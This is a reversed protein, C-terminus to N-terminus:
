FFYEQAVPHECGGQQLVHETLGPQETEDEDDLIDAWEVREKNNDTQDGKGPKDYPKYPMKKPGGVLIKRRPVQLSSKQQLMMEEEGPNAQQVGQAGTGPQTMDPHEETLMVNGGDDAVILRAAADGMIMVSKETEMREQTPHDPQLGDGTGGLVSPSGDGVGVFTPVAAGVPSPVSGAGATALTAGGLPLSVSGTGAPVPLHGGVATTTPDKEVGTPVRALGGGSGVPAPPPGAGGVPASSSGGGSGAPASPPGVGGVMASSPRAVPSGKTPVLLAEVRGQRNPCQKDGTVHGFWRRNMLRPAVKNREPPYDKIVEGFEQIVAAKLFPMVLYPVRVARIWFRQAQLDQRAQEQEVQTSWPRYLVKCPKEDVPANDEKKLTNVLWDRLVHNVALYSIMNAGKPKVRGHQGGVMDSDWGNEMTRLWHEKAAFAADARPGQFVVLVGHRRLYDVTIDAARPDLDVVVDNSKDRSTVIYKAAM